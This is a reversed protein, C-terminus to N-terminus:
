VPAAAEEEALPAFCEERAEHDAEFRVRGPTAENNVKRAYRLILGALKIPNFNAELSRRAGPWSGARWPM